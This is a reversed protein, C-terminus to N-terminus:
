EARSYGVRQTPCSQAESFPRLHSVLISPSMTWRRSAPISISSSPSQSRYSFAKPIHILVSNPWQQRFREVSAQGRHISANDVIWFVRKATRYPKQRRVEGVFRDFSVIMTKPECRGFVKARHVDWAALYNVTGERSYEHLIRM